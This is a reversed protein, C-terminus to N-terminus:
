LQDWSIVGSTPAGGGGFNGGAGLNQQYQNVIGSLAEVRTRSAAELEALSAIMANIPTSTDLAAINDAMEQQGTPTGGGGAQLVSTYFGKAKVLATQYAAFNEDGFRSRLENAARTYDVSNVKNLGTQQLISVARQAQQGAAAAFQAAQVQSEIAGQINQRAIDTAATTQTAINAQEAAGQAQLHLPSAGANTLANNLFNTGVQGAYGLSALAQDYSTNKSIVDQAFNQAQVQPDLNGGAGTFQGTVPDFVTQGFATPSPVALQGGAQLAQQALQQQTNAGTLANTLGTIGQESATLAQGTGQLAAAQAASLASIRNSASEAAIAANGRGVPETGTSKAGAVAGAGLQGVRAIESGYQDSIEQARRAAEQGKQSARELERLYRQQERDPSGAELLGRTFQDFQSTEAKPEAKPAKVLGRKQEEAQPTTLGERIRALSGSIGSLTDRLANNNTGTQPPRMVGATGTNQVPTTDPNSARSLNQERKLLTPQQYLGTKKEYLGKDDVGFRSGWQKWAPSATTPGQFLKPKTKNSIYAM